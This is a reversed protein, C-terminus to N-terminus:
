RREKGFRGKTGTAAASGWFVGMFGKSDASVLLHRTEASLPQLETGSLLASDVSVFFAEAVGNSDASVFFPAPAWLMLDKRGQVKPAQVALRDANEIQQLISLQFKHSEPFIACRVSITSRGALDALASFFFPLLPSSRSGTKSAKRRHPYRCALRSGRPRSVGSLYASSSSSVPGTLEDLEAYKLPTLLGLPDLNAQLYGWRRFAELVPERDEGRKGNKKLAKASKAPREVILTRQAM